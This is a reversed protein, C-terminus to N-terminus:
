FLLFSPVPTHDYRARFGRALVFLFFDTDYRCLLPSSTDDHQHQSLRFWPSLRKVDMDIIAVVLGFLVLLLTPLYRFLFTQGLSFSVGDVALLVAGHSREVNHIFITLGLLLLSCIFICFLLSKRLWFPTWAPPPSEKHFPQDILIPTREDNYIDNSESKLSFSRPM